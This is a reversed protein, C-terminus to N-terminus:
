HNDVKSHYKANITRQASNRYIRLTSCSSAKTTQATTAKSSRISTVPPICQPWVDSRTSLQFLKSRPTPSTPFRHLAGMAELGDIYQESQYRAPTRWVAEQGGFQKSYVRFMGQERGDTKKKGQERPETYVGRMGKTLGM